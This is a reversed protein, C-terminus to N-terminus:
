AFADRVWVLRSTGEGPPGDLAIVDFRARHRRWEPHCLRFYEAARRLRRQKRADVSALAGGFDTRARQRVEVFLLMGDELGILDLEGGRCRFNRAILRVGCRELHRAALEETQRGRQQRAAGGHSRSGAAAGAPNAISNTTPKPTLTPARRLPM